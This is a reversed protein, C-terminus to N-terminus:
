VKILNVVTIEILYIRVALAKSLLVSNLQMNKALQNSDVKASSFDIICAPGSLDLCDFKTTNVISPPKSAFNGYKFRPKDNQM